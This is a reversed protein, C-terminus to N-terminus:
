ILECQGAMCALEQSATTRDEKEYAYIRSYDIEPFEAILEEYQEKTIEEYPALNYVHENMPLFSLGGIKQRHEWVWDIIKTMENKKYAITCSPNHTTWHLKNTLWWNLQDIASLDKNTISGDPSKVPFGVVWTTATDPNQGNEPDMHIGVEKFIKFIPNTSMIRVRRIYYPFQRAHLGSSCNVLTSTNGSPKVCTVSASRNIGLADAWINNEDIVAERLSDFLDGSLIPCDRQGTIDVGLLREEECNKKWEERMGPFHTALSQITGILSALRVKRELTEPTDYSRAVCASLNCLGFPRLNIEGCPNSGFDAKKRNKPKTRNANERSFIGPEGTGAESMELMQRIISNQDIDEPWVASNNANWRNTRGIAELDCNKCNAIEKDDWDFLCIMATRRTGGMVAADGVKTMIDHADIPRLFRGQRSFIIERIFNLMDRLPVPGSAQGGKTKLPAGAPRILDYNFEIDGGEMWTELGKQLAEAWGETSDEIQHFSAASRNRRKIRPFQEVYEREVSYGVGCGAMSILLAEVFCQTDKVPLYSCNGTVIGNPMVFSHDDEVELCWVEKEHDEEISKLHYKVNEGDGMRTMLRFRITKKRGNPAFNTVQGTYDDEGVIYAGVIPFIDRIFDIAEEDSSQISKYSGHEKAGDADLYGVVFARLMEISESRVPLTKLYKGTYFMLDGNLSCSSSSIFGLEEFRSAFKVQDDCLRVMSWRHVGNSDKVKTGDGYIYGYAWYLRELPTADEYNWDQIPTPPRILGDGIQISDTRSGDKKIWTHNETSLVQIKTQSRRFELKKLKQIGYKRVIAKKWKGTHTLVVVDDGDEFDLFSFVGNATIFKTDRSVCNYISLNQRRAADGAMALLRMSPTVEMKLIGQRIEEFVSDPIAGPKQGDALEKLFSVARDVTEVWTERRGLQYNWRSYKDYFQFQRLPDKEFYKEDAKFISKIEEPVIDGRIKAHEHRYIIYRKAAEYEGASLLVQEVIDQIKEVDPISDYAKVSLINVVKLAVESPSIDPQRSISMSAYCNSVAKIIRGEDFPVIKGNRKRISTPKRFSVSFRPVGNVATSIM